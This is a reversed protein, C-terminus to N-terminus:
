EHTKMVNPHYHFVRVGETKQWRDGAHLLYTVIKECVLATAEAKCYYNTLIRKQTKQWTIM